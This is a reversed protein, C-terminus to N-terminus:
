EPTQTESKLTDTKQADDVYTKDFYSIPQTVKIAKFTTKSKEMEMVMSVAVVVVTLFSLMIAAYTARDIWVSKKHKQLFESNPTTTMFRLDKIIEALRAATV